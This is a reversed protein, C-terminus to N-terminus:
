EKENAQDEWELYSRYWRWARSLLKNILLEHTHPEFSTTFLHKVQLTWLEDGYTFHGHRTDQGSPSIHGDLVEIIAVPEVTHIIALSNTDSMPNEALLFRDM